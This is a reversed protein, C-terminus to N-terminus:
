SKHFSHNHRNMMRKNRIATRQNHCRTCITFLCNCIPCLLELAWPYKPHTGPLHNPIGPSLNPFCNPCLRIQFPACGFSSHPPNMITFPRLTLLMPTDTKITIHVSTVILHSPQPHHVFPHRSISLLFSPQRCMYTSSLLCSQSNLVPQRCFISGM